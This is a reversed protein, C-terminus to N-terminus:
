KIGNQAAIDAYYDLTSFVHRRNDSHKVLDVNGECIVMNYDNLYTYYDSMITGNKDYQLELEGSAKKREFIDAAVLTKASYPWITPELGMLLSGERIVNMTNEFAPILVGDDGNIFQPMIGSNELFYMANKNLVMTARGGETISQASKAQAEKFTVQNDPNSPDSLILDDGDVGTVQMNVWRPIGDRKFSMRMPKIGLIDNTKQDSYIGTECLSGFFQVPNVIGFTGVEEVSRKQITPLGNNGMFRQTFLTNWTSIYDVYLEGEDDGPTLDWAKTIDENLMAIAAAYQTPTWERCDMMQEMFQQRAKWKGTNDAITKILKDGEKLILGLQNSTVKMSDYGQKDHPKPILSCNQTTNYKSGRGPFSIYSHDSIGRGVQWSGYTVFAGQADLGNAQLNFAIEQPTRIFDRLDDPGGWQGLDALNQPLPCPQEMAAVVIQEQLTNNIYDPNMGLNRLQDQMQLTQLRSRNQLIRETLEGITVPMIGERVLKSDYYAQRLQPFEADIFEKDTLIRNIEVAPMSLLREDNIAIMTPKLKYFFGGALPPHFSYTNDM